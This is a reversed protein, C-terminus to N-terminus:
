GSFAGARARQFGDIFQALVGNRQAPPIPLVPQPPPALFLAREEARRAVLGPLRRGGGNVWKPFENAAGEYDGGNLRRLLTSSQLRGPGLNFVFSLLAGFQNDNVPVRVMRALALAFRQLDRQFLAAGQEPTIPATDRTVPRGDGAMTSGWGITWVMAPCLYPSAMHRISPARHWGEHRKM